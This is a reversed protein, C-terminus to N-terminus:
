QDAQEDGIMVDYGNEVMARAFRDFFKAALKNATGRLYKAGLEAVRGGMEAKLDYHIRTVSIEEQVLRVRAEGSANGALGGSAQACLRYSWPARIDHVEVQGGFRASLIALKLKLEAEYRDQAVEEFRECGPITCAMVQPDNLAQWVRDPQALIIYSGIFEIM